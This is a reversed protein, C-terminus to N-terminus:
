ADEQKGYRARAIRKGTETRFTKGIVHLKKETPWDNYMAGLNVIWDADWICRFEPTDIKNGSHHSGVIDSVHRLTAGDIALSAMIAEAIPPGEVEQHHGATSGYKRFAEQIGIDHLIAAAQVTLPEGGEAARIEEALALVALAHDIRKMDDGFTEKMKGILKERM